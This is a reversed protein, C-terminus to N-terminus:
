QQAMGQLKEADFLYETCCYECRVSTPQHQQALSLLEESGLGILMQEIQERSCPCFFCLPISECIAFSKNGFIRALIETPAIKDRLMSTVPPLGEIRDVLSDIKEPLEPPLTQILFGGAAAIAGTSDFEVGLGLCSPVQESSSLYWALDEGVESTQLQVMSQYPKKLGLDKTVTLFGARGIAGAVDFKDARPPLGPLPNRITGRLRGRADAEVAMRGIPGNGEVALSLRQNGKLLGAMLAGGTLLRGLAVTATLDTQQKACIESVTHTTVAVLGRFCKDASVVRWLMDQALVDEESNGM